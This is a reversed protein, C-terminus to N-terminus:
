AAYEGENAPPELRIEGRSDSEGSSWARGTDVQWDPHEIGADRVRWWAAVDRPLAKWLGARDAAAELFQTYLARKRTDGLYGPDPHSLCQVLGYSREITELQQLWLDASRQGLLTFLTHDQPLTYPLEVVPGIFFPWISCCGGPQPEYPDSLPVSCDYNIPLEGLWEQVRHTAPSRFGEAEFQDMTAALTPKQAEFSARSSFMSRDHSVGHFGIEFGRNKLERVIGWDIPYWCGINFSSRLGREEELDAVEVAGKLGSASEVDHTLTLAARYPRPWFWRFRLNDARSALLACHAYFRLLRSVSDDYPWAPFEPKGQWRILQRRALIQARRPILRKIRYFLALQTASLGRMSAGGTWTESVYNRLAEALSFPVAVVGSDPDWTAPM